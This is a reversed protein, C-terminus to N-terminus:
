CDSEEYGTIGLVDNETSPMNCSRLENSVFLADPGSLMGVLTRLSQAGSIAGTNATSNV